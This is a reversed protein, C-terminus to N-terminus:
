VCFIPPCGIRQLLAFPGDRSVLDFAKTLDIFALYLPKRQERCKEQLQRVSFVMDITSRAARFGCQAEPYVREALLHLRNLVVRVFAKGVISLLSIGRYYTTAGNGRIRTCRSSRPMACTRPCQEKRGASCCSSLLHHLTSSEKAAKVVEPPINDSGSAKGSALSDIAKSLEEITPPENLEDMAPLPPTNELATNTVTTERSYLEQYHEAWREMQKSPDKIIDGEASKLPASKSTSPGFAKKMGEYM